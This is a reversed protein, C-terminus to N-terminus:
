SVLKLLSILIWGTELLENVEFWVCVLLFFVGFWVWVWVLGLWFLGRAIAQWEIEPCFEANAPTKRILCIEDPTIKTISLKLAELTLHGSPLHLRLHM